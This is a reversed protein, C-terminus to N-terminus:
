YILKEDYLCDGLQNIEERIQKDLLKDECLYGVYFRLGGYKLKIQHIEFNAIKGDNQLKVLYELFEDIIPYWLHPCPSGLSFGYWGNPIYPKWKLLLANEKEDCGVRYKNTIEPDTYLNDVDPYWNNKKINKQLCEPYWNNPIVNYKKLIEIIM